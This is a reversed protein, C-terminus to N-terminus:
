VREGTTWTIKRKGNCVVVSSSQFCCAPLHLVCFAFDFPSITMLADPMCLSSLPIKTVHPLPWSFLHRRSIFSRSERTRGKSLHFHRDISSVNVLYVSPAPAMAAFARATSFSPAFKATSSSTSLEIWFSSSDICGDADEESKVKTLSSIGHPRHDWVLGKM